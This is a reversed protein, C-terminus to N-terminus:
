YTEIIQWKQGGCLISISIQPFGPRAGSLEAQVPVSKRKWLVCILGYFEEGNWMDHWVSFFTWKPIKIRFTQANKASIIKASKIHISHFYKKKEFQELLYFDSLLQCPRTKWEMTQKNEFKNKRTVQSQSWAPAPTLGRVEWLLNVSSHQSVLGGDSWIGPVM